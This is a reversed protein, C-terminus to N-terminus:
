KCIEADKGEMFSRFKLMDTSFDLVPKVYRETLEDLSEYTEKGIVLKKGLMPSGRYPKEKELVDVHVITDKLKWTITLHDLGRSSPRIVFEGTEKDEFYDLAEQFTMNKFVPHNIPRRIKREKKEKPALSKEELLSSDDSSDDWVLYEITPKRPRLAPNPPCLDVSFGSKNIREVQLAMVSGATISPLTTGSDENHREYDNLSKLDITAPLGSELRLMVLDKTVAIIKGTVLQGEQLSIDSENALMMFLEDTSPGKFTRRPDKYNNILEARIDYLARRKPTGIKQLLEAAASDLELEMLLNAKNPHKSINEVSQSITKEGHSQREDLADEAMRGAFKEDDPHIRTNSLIDVDLDGYVEPIRLFPAANFYIFKSLHGDEYIDDRRTLRKGSRGLSQLLDLAKRPGLGSVFQLTSSASRFLVAQNIDVGVDNTVIIFESHIAKILDDKNASGQLPHLKLCLIEDTATCLSALETLPDQLYRGISITQRLYSPLEGFDERYRSSDRAVQAVSSDIFHIPISDARNTDRMSLCLNEIDDFLKKSALETAGVAIVEPKYKEIFMEVQKLDGRKRDRDLQAAREGSSLGMFRLRLSDVPQGNKDLMVFTTPDSGSGTHAGWCCALVTCIDGTKKSTLPAVELMRRLKDTSAVVVQDKADQELKQRIEKGFITVLQNFAERLILRRQENWEDSITSHGTSCYLSEMLNIVESQAAENPLEIKLILLGEEQAKLIELFEASHEFRKVPKRRLKKIHWYSHFDDIIKKGLTTPETSVCTADLFFSRISQRVHPNYAIEQALIVRCAKLVSEADPFGSRVVYDEGLEVPAQESDLAQHKAFNDMMNEGFQKATLGFIKALETVGPANKFTRYTDQKMPRRHRRGESNNNTNNESVSTLQLHDFLDNVEEETNCSDLLSLEDEDNVLEDTDADRSRQFAKRLQVKRQELHHWKVDWHAIHWIHHKELEPMYYDKRYNTILPIDFKDKLIFSLVTAIKPIATKQVKRGAFARSFIWQAEKTLDTEDPEYHLLNRGSDEFHFQIREPLDLERIHRDKETIYKEDLVSPEFQAKFISLADRKESTRPRDGNQYYERDDFIEEAEEILSSPVFARGRGRGQRPEDVIFDDEEDGSIFGADNDDFAPRSREEEEGDGDLDEEKEDTKKKLRKFKKDRNRQLKVGTNEAILDMDDDDLEEELPRSRRKRKKHESGESYDAAENDEEITDVVFGDKEYEDPGDEEEESSDVVDDVVSIGEEESDSM